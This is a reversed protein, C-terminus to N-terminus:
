ESYLVNSETESSETNSQELDANPVYNGQIFIYYLRRLIGSNIFILLSTKRVKIINFRVKMVYAKNKLSLTLTM